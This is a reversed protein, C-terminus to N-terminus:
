FYDPDAGIRKDKNLTNITTMDEESLEFDFININEQIRKPTVSKPIVVLGHQIHWRLIIQAETKGHNFALMTIAPDRLLEGGQMLPSYSEVQIGHIECFARTHLQQMLPHVEIQNVMPTIEAHDMLKQLHHPKFNSVGIARIMGDKHLQELAKWTDIFKGAGPMPWHILYLDIYDSDLLRLSNDFARLTADYGQDSNWVKTTVFLEERPIDGARLARGVGAENGYIAATDIMRYGADLATQVASEVEAGDRAQWVGLGLQPMQVGNSLEVTPTTAVIM